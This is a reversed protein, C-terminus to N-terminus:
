HERQGVPLLPPRGRRAARRRSQGVAFGIEAADPLARAHSVDRLIHRAAFADLLKGERGPALLLPVTIVGGFAVIGPAAQREAQQSGNASRMGNLDDLVVFVQGHEELLVTPEVDRGDVSPGVEFIRIRGPESAGYSVPLAVCQYDVGDRKVSFDLRIGVAMGDALLQVGDLAEFAAVQPVDVVDQRDVVRLGIGLWPVANTRPGQPRIPFDHLVGALFVVFVNELAVDFRANLPLALGLGPGTRRHEGPVCERSCM